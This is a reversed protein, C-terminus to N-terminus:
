IRSMLCKISLVDIPLSSDVPGLKGGTTVQGGGIAGAEHGSM